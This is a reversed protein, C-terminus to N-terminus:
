KESTVPAVNANVKYVINNCTPACSSCSMSDYIEEELSEKDTIGQPYYKRWKGVFNYTLTPPFLRVLYDLINVLDYYGKLTRIGIM